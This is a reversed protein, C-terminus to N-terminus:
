KLWILEEWGSQKRYPRDKVDISALWIMTARFGTELYECLSELNNFDGTKLSKNIDKDEGGHVITSRASYAVKMKKSSVFKDLHNNAVSLLSSGNLSFRYSLEQAIPNGEQTLLLAEWAIVYDVLKDVLDSRKRGLVFRHLARSLTKDGRKGGSILDYATSISAQDKKRIAVNVGPLIKELLPQGTPMQEIGGKLEIHGLVAKGSVVVLISDLISRFINRASEIAENHADFFAGEKTCDVPVTIPLRLELSDHAVVMEQYGFSSYPQILPQKENQEKISLRAVEVEDPLEMRKSTLSAGILRTSAIYQIHKKTLVDRFKRLKHLAEVNNFVIRKVTARCTATLLHQFVGEFTGWFGAVKSSKSFVKDREFADKAANYSKLKNIAKSSRGYSLVISTKEDIVTKTQRHTKSLIVWKEATVIHPEMIGECDVLLAVIKSELPTMEKIAKGNIHM